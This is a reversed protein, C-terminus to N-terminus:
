SGYSDSGGVTNGSHRQGVRAIRWEGVYYIVMDHYATTILLMALRWRRDIGRSGRNLTTYGLSHRRTPKENNRPM